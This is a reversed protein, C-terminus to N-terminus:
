KGGLLRTPGTAIYYTYKTLVYTKHIIKHAYGHKNFPNTPSAISTSLLATLGLLRQISTYECHSSDEQTDHEGGGRTNM